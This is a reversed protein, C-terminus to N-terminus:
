SWLCMHNSVLQTEIVTKLKIFTVNRFNQSLLIAIQLHVLQVTQFAYVTIRM